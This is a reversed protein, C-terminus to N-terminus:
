LSRTTSVEAVTTAYDGSSPAADESSRRSASFGGAPVPRHWMTGVSRLARRTPPGCSSRRDRSGFTKASQIAGHHRWAVVGHAERQAACCDRLPRPPNSGESSGSATPPKRSRASLQRKAAVVPPARGPARGAGANLRRRRSGSRRPPAQGGERGGPKHPRAACTPAKPPAPPRGSPLDARPIPSGPTAPREREPPRHDARRDAAAIIGAVM